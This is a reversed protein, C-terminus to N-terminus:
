DRTERGARMAEFANGIPHYGPEVAPEPRPELPEGEPTVGTRWNGYRPNVLAGHAYAWCDDYWEWYSDDETRSGLVAAAGIAEAVPWGYRNAVLPEGDRDVTYYFGGRDDDWGYEVAADFLETAREVFWAEDRHRDLTGLLKAWELQHGPQYGWPRFTHEPEDRNYAWDPEWDATYHEWVFGHDADPDAPTRVLEALDVAQELFRSEGTAEYAAISAECLHMTANQGRYPEVESWGPSAKAVPLGHDPDWFRDRVLDQTRELGERAGELGVTTGAACALLAFAHGYCYRNRDRPETGDLIWDYGGAEDDWHETLLFRLGREAAPRCWRPGDIRAGVCHTFAYRATAVLHKTRGDYVHGDEEDLQAVYGGHVRDVGAPHYFGLVNLVHGRLAREDRFASRVTTDM